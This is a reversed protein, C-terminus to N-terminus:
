RRPGAERAGLAGLLKDLEDQNLNLNPFDSPSYNSKDGPRASNLLERLAALFDDALRQVTDRRHRNESFTWVVRLTGREVRANIELLCYRRGAPSCSPGGSEVGCSKAPAAEAHNTAFQGFYNFRVQAHALEGLRQRMQLDESLYRLVGYGVGRNPIRRLQEKVSKLTESARAGSKISLWVPYVSTFWGVTRTLDFGDFLPERGHGELDILLQSSGSYRELAQGLATLLAEIVQTRFAAPVEKLLADTEQSTLAVEIDRASAVTNPGREHDVPLATVHVPGQLWFSLEQLVSSSSAYQVLRQAWRQFSTTKDPLKPAEGRALQSYCTQLDELLIRWSVGDVVLHHIVLLLGDSNRADLRYLAARALPANSLDLSSQLRAASRQLETARRAAPLGTLDVEEFAVSPDPDAHCQRWRRDRHEFRLRLADHHRLLHAFAQRMLTADTTRAIPLVVAQNFHHPEELAQEFFWRQIPTLPVEGTVLGQEPISEVLPFAVAALEAVTQHQFIQQPTLQWGAQKARAVIQISLISDGGLEFFNDNAGVRLVGLVESWIRALTQEAQSGPPIYDRELEPRIGDPAPLANRDVKGNPTLPLAWIVVFAAPVMFDPLRELLFSRLQPVLQRATERRLPNNAYHAIARRPSAEVPFRVAPNASNHDRHLIAVDFDGEAGHRSWSLVVRYPLDDELALLDQPDLAARPEDHQRRGKLDPPDDRASAEFAGPEGLLRANAVRALGLVTPRDQALHQRLDSLSWRSERWDIWEPLVQSNSAGGVHIVVQFRFRTLENHACGRKPLVEVRDIGAIRQPLTTFFSPAVALETENALSAQVRDDLQTPSLSPEAKFREISAHLMPLLPLSRVDGVFVHGGPRVARVAGELVRQLYDVTPFYQVVSNLVVADFSGPEIRDFNDAECQSLEVQALERGPQSMVRRVYDLATASVDSGRYATCLPALRFLLLGTGCGIEYISRPAFAVIRQVSDDVWERMEQPSIPAGTYRSDWGSTNFTPDGSDALQSYIHKDFIERWSDVQQRAISADTRTDVPRPVVYAVLRKDGYADPRADVCAEQVAPHLGLAAEIEGLEVRFGRIKIQNDIRGLFELNGDARRCVLDGTRYLRKAADIRFPHPVFKEATLEDRRLYGHALGDGGIYLEGPVGIPVPERHRDLVYLETNAIPRGIPIHTAGEPVDTILHWAAFTTSETPGYVHLLRQPAGERLVRRAWKPDAASGGFLMHRLPQFVQPNESALQNFLATTLFLTSVGQRRLEGAFSAPSLLMDHAFVVVRAGALLPGWIEFTAADFSTNSAHAVRDSPEFTIYDTGQVLRNIAYHPIRAGKPIGTSGSTYMVYAVHQPTVASEPCKRAGGVPWGADGDVCIREAPGDPLRDLLRQQTVVVCADTDALMFAIRSRPYSPDVPAYAAGSKLVALLAAIMAASREMCVAVLTGPGVGHAALRHALANAREDLIRYTWSQGSDVIAVAHPSRQAQLAFLEHVCRERPYECRTDNWARIMQEREGPALLPLRSLPTDPDAVISELLVQFHRAIRALTSADFLDTSYEFFGALQQPGDFLSLELDFKATGSYVDLAAAGNSDAARNRAGLSPANLLQFIVQFLPNRSLDRSPQLAEVLMEFPLDQHAYASTTMERVRQLLARFSPDGSLNSRLV